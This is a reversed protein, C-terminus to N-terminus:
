FPIEQELPPLPPRNLRSETKQPPATAKEPVHKVWVQDSQFVRMAYPPERSAGYSDKLWWRWAARLRETNGGLREMARVWFGAFAANPSEPILGPRAKTREEQAWVFFEVDPSPAPEEARRDKVAGRTAADGPMGGFSSVPDPAKAAAPETTLRGIDSTLYLVDSVLAAPLTSAPHRPQGLADETDQRPQGLADEAEPDPLGRAKEERHFRQHKAFNRIVLLRKGAVTYRRIFGREHLSTLIQDADGNDYPLCKVKLERPKDELKGDKDAYCWLAIFFLRHIPTLEGLDADTFFEPKITRIRAM